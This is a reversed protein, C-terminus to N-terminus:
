NDARLWVGLNLLDIDLVLMLPDNETRVTAKEKLKM